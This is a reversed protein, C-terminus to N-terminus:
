PVGSIFYIIALLWIKVGQAAAEEKRKLEKERKNLEAERTQLEREKKKLDASGLSGGGYNPGAAKGRVGSDHGQAMFGLVAMRSTGKDSGRGGVYLVSAEEIASPRTRLDLKRAYYGGGDSSGHTAGEVISPSSWLKRRWRGVCSTAQNLRPAQGFRRIGPSRRAGLRRRKSARQGLPVVGEEGPSGWELMLGGLGLGSDGSMRVLEVRHRLSQSAPPRARVPVGFTATLILFRSVIIWNRPASLAVPFLRVLQSGLSVDSRVSHALHRDLDGVVADIVLFTGLLSSTPCITSSVAFPNVDEEQFPDSDYRGAM